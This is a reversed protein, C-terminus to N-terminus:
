SEYFQVALTMSSRKVEASYCLEQAIAAELKVLGSVSVVFFM